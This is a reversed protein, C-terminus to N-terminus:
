VDYGLVRNIEDWDRPTWLYTEVGPCQRLTELWEVQGPAWRGSKMIKWTSAKGKTTKLEAFVVRPPNLMVLDPFGRPSNLSSWTFYVWWDLSRAANMVQQRFVKESVMELPDHLDPKSM